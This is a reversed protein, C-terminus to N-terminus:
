IGFGVSFNFHLHSGGFNVSPKSVGLVSTPAFKTYSQTYQLSGTVFPYLYKFNRFYCICGVKAYWGFGKASDGRTIKKELIKTREKYVKAFKVSSYDVGGGAFIGCESWKQRATIM